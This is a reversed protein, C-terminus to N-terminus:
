ATMAEPNKIFITTYYGRYEWPIKYRNLYKRFPAVVSESHQRYTGYDNLYGLDVFLGTENPYNTENEPVGMFGYLHKIESDLGYADARKKITELKM